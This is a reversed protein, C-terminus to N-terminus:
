GPPTRPGHRGPVGPVRRSRAVLVVAVVAAVVAAAAVAGTVWGGRGILRWTAALPSLTALCLWASMVVVLTTATRRSREGTASASLIAVAPLAPALYWPYLVPSGLAVALGGLGVVTLGDRLTPLGGSCGPDRWSRWLLAGVVASAVGLALTRTMQLVWSTDLGALGLPAGVVAALISAPAVGTELKGSTPLAGVWTPGFGTVLMGAVTAMAAVMLDATLVTTMARLRSRISPSVVTAAHAAERAHALVLWALALGATVKVTAALSALAVAGAATLRRGAPRGSGDPEAPVYRRGLLLAGAVLAAALADLHAGGVLHIVVVPNCGVLALVFPWGPAARGAGVHAGGVQAGGVQAGGGHAGGLHAGGGHSADAVAVAVAPVGAARALALTMLVLAISAMIAVVELVLVVGMPGPGFLAEGLAAAAKEVAVATGGYPAYTERWRPDVADVFTSGVDGFARLSVIGNTAPDLGHRALEGQAAYAYVDRSFLPPGLIFPLSWAAWAITVSRGPVRGAMAAVVLRWWCLCLAIVALAAVGALAGRSADSLPDSPVIGWWSSPDHTDPDRPGLRGEALVVVVAAASGAPVM